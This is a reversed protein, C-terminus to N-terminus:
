NICRSKDIIHDTM